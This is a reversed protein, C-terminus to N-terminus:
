AGQEIRKFEIVWVWDNRDWSGPYTANWSRIFAALQNYELGPRTDNYGEAKLDLPTLDQIREVRVSVIELTIRSAWRPMHISPRKLWKHRQEEPPPDFRVCDAGRGGEFDHGLPTWIPEIPESGAWHSWYGYEWFTERVWLRDGPQGYPCFQRMARAFSYEDTGWRSLQVHPPRQKGRWSWGRILGHDKTEEFFPQPKVPRRTMTKRGELIARVMPGSFLIPREKVKTATTM